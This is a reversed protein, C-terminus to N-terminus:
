VVLRCMLQEPFFWISSIPPFFVQEDQCRMPGSSKRVWNPTLNKQWSACQHGHFKKKSNKRRAACFLTLQVRNIEDQLKAYVQVRVRISSPLSHVSNTSLYGLKLVCWLLLQNLWSCRNEKHTCIQMQPTNEDFQTYQGASCTSSLEMSVGHGCRQLLPSLSRNVHVTRRFM